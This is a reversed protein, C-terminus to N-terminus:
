LVFQHSLSCTYSPAVNCISRGFIIVVCFNNRFHKRITIFNLFYHKLNGMACNPAELDVRHHCQCHHGLWKDVCKSGGICPKEYECKDPRYKQCGGVVDGFRELSKLNSFDIFKNNVRFDRICGIYGQNKDANHSSPRNGLIITSQLDFSRYCPVAPDSCRPLLNFTAEVACHKYGIKRSM